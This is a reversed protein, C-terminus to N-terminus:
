MLPLISQSELLIEKRKETEMNAIINRESEPILRLNFREASLQPFEDLAHQAVNRQTANM